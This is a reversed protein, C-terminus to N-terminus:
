RSSTRWDVEIWWWFRWKCKKRQRDMGSNARYGDELIHHVVGYLLLFWVFYQATSRVYPPQASAGESVGQVARHIGAQEAKCPM